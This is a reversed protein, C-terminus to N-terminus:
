GDWNWELVAVMDEGVVVSCGRARGVGGFGNKSRVFMEEVRLEDGRWM